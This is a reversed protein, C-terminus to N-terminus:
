APRIVTLLEGNHMHAHKNKRKKEKKGAGTLQRNGTNESSCAAAIPADGEHGYAVARNTNSVKLHLACMEPLSTFPPPPPPPIGKITVKYTM